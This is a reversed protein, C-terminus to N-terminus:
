NLSLYSKTFKETYHLKNGGFLFLRVLVFFYSLTMWSKCQSHCKYLITIWVFYVKIERYYTQFDQWSTLNNLFYFIKIISRNQKLFNESIAGCLRGGTFKLYEFNWKFYFMCVKIWIKCLFISIQQNNFGDNKNLRWFLLRNDFGENKPPSITKPNSTPDIFLIYFYQYNFICLLILLVLVRM